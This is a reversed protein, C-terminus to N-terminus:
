IVPGEDTPVIDFTCILEWGDIIPIEYDLTADVYVEVRTVRGTFENKVEVLTEETGFTLVMEPCSLKRAKKNLKGIKDKLYDIRNKEISITELM